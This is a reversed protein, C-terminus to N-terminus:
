ITKIWQFRSMKITSTFSLLFINILLILVYFSWPIFCSDKISFKITFFTILQLWMIAVGEWFSDGKHHQWLFYLGQSLNFYFTWHLPMSLEVPRMVNTLVKTYNNLTRLATNLLAITVFNFLYASPLWLLVFQFSNLM